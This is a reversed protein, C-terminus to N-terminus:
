GRGQTLMTRGQPPMVHGCAGGMVACVYGACPPLCGRGRTNKERGYAGRVRGRAGTRARLVGGGIGAGAGANEGGRAGWQTRRLLAAVCDCAGRYKLPSLARGAGKDDRGQRTAGQKRGGREVDGANGANGGGPTRERGRSERCLPSPVRAAIGSMSAPSSLPSPIGGDQSLPSSLLCASWKERSNLKKSVRFVPM